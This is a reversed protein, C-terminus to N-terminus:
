DAPSKAMKRFLVALREAEISVGMRREAWEGAQRGLRERRTRNELLELIAKTIGQDDPDALLAYKGGESLEPYCGSSALAAARGATLAARPMFGSEDARDASVYLDAAALLRYCTPMEPALLSVDKELAMIKIGRSLEPEFGGEGMILLHTQPLRAIAESMAELLETQRSGEELPAINVLFLPKAKDPCHLRRLIERHNDRVDTALSIAQFDVGQAIVTEEGGGGRLRQAASLSPWAVAVGAKRGYRALSQDAQRYSLITRRRGAFLVARFLFAGAKRDHVQIGTPSLRRLLRALGLWRIPNLSGNCRIPFFDVGAMRACEALRSGDPGAVAQELGLARMATALAAIHLGTELSVGDSALHLIKGHDPM